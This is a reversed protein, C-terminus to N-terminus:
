ILRIFYVSLDLFWWFPCGFRIAKNDQWRKTQSSCVRVCVGLLITASSTACSCVLTLYSRCYCQTQKICKESALVCIRNGINCADDGLKFLSTAWSPSESTKTNQRAASKCHHHQQQQLIFISEVDQSTVHKWAMKQKMMEELRIQSNM